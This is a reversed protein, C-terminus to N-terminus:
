RPIVSLGDFAKLYHFKAKKYEGLSIYCDALYKNAWRNYENFRYSVKLVRLALSYRKQRYLRAGNEMFYHSISQRLGPYRNVIKDFLERSTDFLHNNFAKMAGRYWKLSVQATIDDKRASLRSFFEHLPEGAKYDTFLRGTRTAERFHWLAKKLEGRELSIRAVLYHGAEHRGGTLDLLSKAVRFAEDIRSSRYLACAKAFIVGACRFRARPPLMSIEPSYSDFWEPVHEPLLTSFAHAFAAAAEDKRGARVQLAALLFAAKSDDKLTEVVKRMLSAARRVAAARAASPKGNGGAKRFRREFWSACAAVIRRAKRPDSAERQLQSLGSGKAVAAAVREELSPARGATRKRPPAGAKAVYVGARRAAKGARGGRKEGKGSGGGHQPTHSASSTKPAAAQKTAPRVKKSVVKVASGGPVSSAAPPKQAPAGSRPRGPSAGKAGTERGGAAPAKPRLIRRKGEEKGEAAGSSPVKGAEAAVPAKGHVSPPAASPAARAGAFSHIERESADERPPAGGSARDTSDARGGHFVVRGPPVPWGGDLAPSVLYAALLALCIVGIGAPLLVRRLRGKGKGEPEEGERAGGEDLGALDASSLRRFTSERLPEISDFDPVDFPLEEGKALKELMRGMEEMSSYRQAPDKALAKMVFLEIRAQREDPDSWLPPPPESVHKYGISIPDEGGFPVRGAFMEYFVVGCSYIDIAATPELSRFQEPAMYYPTGLTTGTRTFSSKGVIRAIGFDTVYLHRESDLLINEPKIDRHIFGKRHAYSLARIMARMLPLAEELTLRGRRRLLSALSTGEIWKMAFFCFGDEEGVTYIPVINPHELAAAIKAEQLFRRKVDADNEYVPLLVKVAVTRELSTDLAKYVIAMAGRGIEEELRYPGLRGRRMIGFRDDAAPATDEARRRRRGKSKMSKESM